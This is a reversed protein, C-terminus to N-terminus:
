GRGFGTPIQLDVLDFEWRGEDEKTVSGTLVGIRPREPLTVEHMTLRSGAMSMGHMSQPPWPM